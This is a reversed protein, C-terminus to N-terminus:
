SEFSRTAFVSLLFIIVILFLEIIFLPHPSSLGFVYLSANAFFLLIIFCASQIIRKNPKLILTMLYGFWFCIFIVLSLPHVLQFFFALFKSIILASISLKVGLIM